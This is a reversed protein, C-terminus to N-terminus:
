YFLQGARATIALILFIQYRHYRYKQPLTDISNITNINKEQEKLYSQSESPRIIQKIHLFIQYFDATDVPFM